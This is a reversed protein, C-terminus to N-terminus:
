SVTAGGTKKVDEGEDAPALLGPNVDRAAGALASAFDMAVADLYGAPTKWAAPLDIETWPTASDDAADTPKIERQVLKTLSSIAMAWHLGMLYLDIGEQTERAQEGSQGTEAQIMDDIQRVYAFYRHRALASHTAVTARLQTITGADAPQSRLKTKAGEAAEEGAPQMAARQALTPPATYTVTRITRLNM